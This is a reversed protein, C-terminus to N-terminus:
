ETVTTAVSTPVPSRGARALSRKAIRARSRANATTGSREVHWWSPGPVRHSRTKSAPLVLKASATTTYRPALTLQDRAVAHRRLMENVDREEDPGLCQSRDACHCRLQEIAILM